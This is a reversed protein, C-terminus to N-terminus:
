MFGGADAALDDFGGPVSAGDEDTVPQHGTRFPSVFDRQRSEHFSGLQYWRSKTARGGAQMRSFMDCLRAERCVRQRRM